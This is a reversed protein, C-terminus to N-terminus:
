HADKKVREITARLMEIARQETEDSTPERTAIALASELFPLAEAPRKLEVLLMGLAENVAASDPMAASAQKWEGIAAERDGHKRALSGKLFHAPGHDPKLALVRALWDEADTDRGHQADIAALKWLLEADRIDMKVLTERLVNGAAVHPGTPRHEYARLLYPVAAEFGQTKLLLMAANHHAEFSTPLLDAARQYTRLAGAYEQRALQLKGKLLLSKGDDPAIALAREAYSAAAALDGRQAALTGLLALPAAERPHKDRADEAVAVARSMDGGDGLAGALSLADDLSDPRLALAKEFNAAAKELDGQRLALVGMGRYAEAHAPDISLAKEFDRQADDTENMQSSAVGLSTWAEASLPYRDAVMKFVESAAKFEHEEDVEAEYLFTWGFGLNAQVHDDVTAFITQDGDQATKLLDLSRQYAAHSRMLTDGTNEARYKALMVRGLSLAVFPDKPADAAAITFLHEEDHWFETRHFSRVGYVLALLALCAIAAAKPLFRLAVSTALLAFGLVAVYLYRDALPYRGLTEVRILLPVIAAAIIAAACLMLTARRARARWIVLALAAIWALAALVVPDALVRGPQFSRFLNLKFPWALLGVFGGLLEVRL